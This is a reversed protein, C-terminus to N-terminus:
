FNGRLFAQSDPQALIEYGITFHACFGFCERVVDRAEWGHADARVTSRRELAVSQRNAICQDLLPVVAAFRQDFVTGFTRCAELAAEATVAVIFLDSLDSPGRRRLIQVSRDVQM